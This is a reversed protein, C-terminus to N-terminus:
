FTHRNLIRSQVANTFVSREELNQFAFKPIPIVSLPKELQLYLAHETECVREVHSYEITNSTTSTAVTLGNEGVCIGQKGAFKDFDGRQLQKHINYPLLLLQLFLCPIFVIACLLLLWMHFLFGAVLLVGLLVGAAAQNRWYASSRYLSRFCETLLPELEEKSIEYELILSNNKAWLMRSQPQSGAGAASFEEVPQKAKLLEQLMGKCGQPTQGPQLAERPLFDTTNDTFYLAVGTADATIAKVECAQKHMQLNGGGQLTKISYYSGDLISVRQQGLMRPIQGSLRLISIQQSAVVIPSVVWLGVGFSAALIVLFPVLMYSPMGGRTAAMWALAVSFATAFLMCVRMICTQRYLPSAKCRTLLKFHCKLVSLTVNFTWEM